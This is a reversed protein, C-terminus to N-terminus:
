HHNLENMLVVGKTSDMLGIGLQALRHVDKALEKKGEEFHATSGMSLRILADAVGNAKGLHYLISMDYYKLLELWRRQRLYLDKQSFVYQLSEYLHSTFNRRTDEGRFSLFVVYKWRPRYQSNSAFSSSSEM